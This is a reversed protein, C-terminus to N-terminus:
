PLGGQTRLVERVQKTIFDAFRSASQEDDMIVTGGQPMNVNVTVSSQGFPKVSPIGDGLFGFPQGGPIHSKIRMSGAPSFSPYSINAKSGGGIPISGIPFNEEDRTFKPILMDPLAMEPLNIKQLFTIIKNLTDIFTNLPKMIQNFFENFDQVLGKSLLSLGGFVIATFGLIGGWVEEWDIKIDKLAKVLSGFPLLWALNSDYATKIGEVVLKFITEMDKWIEDWNHYLVDIAKILAGGPLIWGLNSSYAQKIAIVLIRFVQEANKWLTSWVEKVKEIGLQFEESELIWKLNTDYLSKIEKVAEDMTEGAGDWFGNWVEKVKDIGKRLGGDEMLWALNEEFATKIATVSTEFATKIGDWTTTMVTKITDLATELFGFSERIENIARTVILSITDWKRWIVIGIIIAAAVAGIILLLPGMAISLGAMAVSLGSVVTTLAPIIMVLPGIAVAVNGIPSLISKLRNKMMDMKDSTTLTSAGLNDMAGTSNEMAELMTGLDLAGNRIGASFRQAGDAGFVGTAINLAEVDTEANKIEAITGLLAGKLDTVGESALKRTAMNLAPMVRSVAIGNSELGAFMATTEEISFGANKLIPGFTEINSALNTVSVGSAQSAVVLKDLMGEVETAPISFIEMADSVSTIAASTDDGMVRSLDLFAKTAGELEDGSLGLETNLDAIASSVTKSDNPVGKFVEKFSKNLAALDKGTAGTGARITNEATKFEDGLKVAAVAMGTVAASALAVPKALGGIKGSLGGINQEAKATDAGVTINVTNAM